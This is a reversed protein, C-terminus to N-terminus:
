RSMQLRSFIIRCGVVHAVKSSKPSLTELSSLLVGTDTVRPHSVKIVQGLHVGESRWLTGQKEM